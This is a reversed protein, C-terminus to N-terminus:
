SAAAVPRVFAAACPEAAARDGPVLGVRTRRDLLDDVTLAGEHAVGFALEVALVPSGKSVPQLLAPDSEALSAVAPAESGFRQVLRPPADLRALRWRPAAGVLPLRRTRCPDATVGPRAAIRDVVDEAMRRYTTLKGGVVTLLGDDRESVRHRRSLDATAGSAGALLPRYGAFEGIVDADTLPRRLARSATDLLFRRDEADVGPEDAPRGEIPSDTLGLYVRGGSQPLGFVWRNRSGPVPVNFAARPNGLREADLVLHAGKSPQLQVQDDIDDAWVGAANVVHRARLEFTGGGLEDHVVAGAGTVQEARCYTLIRAGYAAATRALAVVLRADDELQGDWLLLGGRLGERRLSPVLTIAEAASIRRPPPLARRSTGAAMRLLDGVRGGLSVLAGPVPPLGANLPVVMPLPRTLHPATREMLIGRERAAELALGLEGHALYRLGGHVLKSSWRSTGNALDRREALAVSLGRSAADLAVGAGTVGGGIVLVDVTQGGALQHLERSRRRANLSASTM